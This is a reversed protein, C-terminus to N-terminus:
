IRDNWQLIRDNWQLIEDMFVFNHRKTPFFRKQQTKIQSKNGAYYGTAYLCVIAGSYFLWKTKKM